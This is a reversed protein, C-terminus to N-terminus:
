SAPQELGALWRAIFQAQVDKAVSGMRGFGAHEHPAGTRDFEVLEIRDPHSSRRRLAEIFERQGEINVWEDHRAHLALFPIDRWQDLHDIPNLREVQDAVYMERHSQWRWSGSTAEVAACLFSHPRCLRVMTAMGGASMGGLALRAVDFDGRGALAAVIEDIEEAMQEVVGLTADAAQRPAEFREGHGPLDLACVAIGYRLLRQYRGPDLEKSVTRGHMWLLAPRPRAEGEAQEAGLDPHVILAPVRHRGLREWRCSPRLSTPLPSSLDPM